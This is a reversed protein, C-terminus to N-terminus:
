WVRPVLRFRVRSAYAVYGPLHAQLYRDEILARRAILAGYGIALLLALWSGLALAQSPVAILLGLYGPHRVVAYPGASVVTQQRDTQIRLATSFFRNVIMAQAVLALSLAFAVMAMIRVSEPVSDSWHFRSIDALAAVVTCFGLLRIAFLLTPDQTPGAPRRREKLLTPDIRTSAYFAMALLILTFVWFRPLAVRLGIWVFLAGAVIWRLSRIVVSSSDYSDKL